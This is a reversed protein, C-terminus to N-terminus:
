EYRLEVNKDLPYVPRRVNKFEGIRTVDPNTIGISQITLYEQPADKFVAQYAQGFGKLLLVNFKHYDIGLQAFIDINETPAKYETVVITIGREEIVAIKGVDILFEDDWYCFPIKKDHIAIVKANIDIPNGHLNDNWGGLKGTVTGGVGVAVANRVVDPDHITSVGVNKMNLDLLKQLIYTGDAPGGGLPDDAEDIFAWLGGQKAKECAEEAPILEPVFEDKIEWIYDTMDKAIEMALEYDNDTTVVASPGLEYKDSGYFGAFPSVNIVNSKKEWDYARDMLKKMPGYGTDTILAPLVVPPQIRVSVPSVKGELINKILQAAEQERQYQDEHPQTNFGFLATSNSTMKDSVNAHLDLTAVIPVNEGVQNRVAQLFDGECDDYGFAAAAGHLHLCVADVPERALVKITVNKIYEYLDQDLPASPLANGFIMPVIEWGEKKAFDIYGGIFRESGELKEIIENGEYFNNQRFADFDTREVSFSNSEHYFGGIAVKM